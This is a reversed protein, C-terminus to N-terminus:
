PDQPIFCTLGAYSLLLLSNGGQWVASTGADFHIQPRLGSEEVSM